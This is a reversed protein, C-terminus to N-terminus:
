TVILILYPVGSFNITMASIRDSISYLIQRFKGKILLLLAAPGEDSRYALYETM